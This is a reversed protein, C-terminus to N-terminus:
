RKRGVKGFVGKAVELVRLQIGDVLGPHRLPGALPVRLQVIGFALQLASAESQM